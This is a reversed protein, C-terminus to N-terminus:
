LEHEVDAEAQIVWTASAAESEAMIWKMTLIQHRLQMRFHTQCTVRKKQVDRAM